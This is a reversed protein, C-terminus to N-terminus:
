DSDTRSCEEADNGVCFLSDCHEMFSLEVRGASELLDGQGCRDGQLQSCQCGGCWDVLANRDPCFSQAGPCLASRARM